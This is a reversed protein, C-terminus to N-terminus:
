RGDSGGPASDIDKLPGLGSLPLPELIGVRIGDIFRGSVSLSMHKVTPQRSYQVGTRVARQCTAIGDKM